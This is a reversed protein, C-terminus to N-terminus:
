LQKTTKKGVAKDKGPRGVPLPRLRRGIARELKRVFPDGGLPCGRLTWRRLRAVVADEQPRTLTEPWDGGGLLERWKGLDLLGAPRPRQRSGGRQEMGARRSGRWGERFNIRRSYRRHAEGVGRALGQESAPVAM